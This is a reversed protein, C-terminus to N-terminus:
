EYIGGHHVRVVADRDAGTITIWTDPRLLIIERPAPKNEAAYMELRQRESEAYIAVAVMSLAFFVFLWLLLRPAFTKSRYHYNM